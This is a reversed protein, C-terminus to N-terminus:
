QQRAAPEVANMMVVKDAVGYVQRLPGVLAEIITTIRDPDTRDDAGALQTDIWAVLDGGAIDRIFLFLSYATQNLRGNRLPHNPLPCGSLQDPENCTGSGKRYGCAHFQWYSELKPCAPGAALDAAIAGWTLAGHKDMYDAAVADAIGQFSFACVMWDFLVPTSHTEIAGLVGENVLNDRADDVFSASGALCCVTHIIRHAYAYGDSRVALSKKAVAGSPPKRAALM